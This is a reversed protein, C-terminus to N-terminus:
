QKRMLHKMFEVGAPTLRFYREHGMHLWMEVYGRREAELMIDLSKGTGLVRVETTGNFAARFIESARQEATDTDWKGIINEGFLTM